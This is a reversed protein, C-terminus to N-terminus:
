NVTCMRIYIVDINKKAQTKTTKTHKKKSTKTTTIKM